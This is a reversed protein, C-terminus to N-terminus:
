FLLDNCDALFSCYCPIRHWFIFLYILQETNHCNLHDYWCDSFNYVGFNLSYSSQTALLNGEKYIKITNGSKTAALFHWSLDTEACQFDLHRWAALDGWILSLSGVVPYGYQFAVGKQDPGHGQSVPVALGEQPGDSKLWFSITFDDDASLFQTGTEVYDDVGDFSYASDTNGAKNTTLTAGHVTGNNGNGSEDNANGNFPYYALLGYTLDAYSRPSVALFVLAALLVCITIRILM